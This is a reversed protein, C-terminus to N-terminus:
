AKAKKKTFRMINGGSPHPRHQVQTMVKHTKPLIKDLAGESLLDEGYDSTEIVLSRGNTYVLMNFLSNPNSKYASTYVKSMVEGMAIQVNATENESFKIRRAVLGVFFKVGKITEKDIGVCLQLPKEKEEKTITITYDKNAVHASRCRPCIFRGSTPIKLVAGCLCQSTKPFPSTDQGMEGADLVPAIADDAFVPTSIQEPADAFAAPALAAEPAADEGEFMPGGSALGKIAEDETEYMGIVSDLNMMEITLKVKPSARVIGLGGGDGAYIDVYKVLAGLGTSNIYQVESMELLVKTKGNTRPVELENMFEQVTNMDIAGSIRLLTIQPDGDMEEHVIDIEPM